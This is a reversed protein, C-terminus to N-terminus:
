KGNLATEILPIADFAADTLGPFVYRRDGAGPQHTTGAVNWIYSPTTSPLAAAPHPGQWASGDPEDTVIIVRNHGDFHARVADAANGDGLQWFRPLVTTLSDDPDCKVRLHSGGFQILTADEARLAVAAGFVAARDAITVASGRTVQTFMSVSRDILILTRGPLSPVNALSIQLARVLAASWARSAAWTGSPTQRAAEYLRLPRIRERTIREPDALEEGLRRVTERSLGCADLEPLRRLRDAYSMSPLVAEWARPDTEGLLWGNLLDSTMGAAAFLEALDPGALLEHRQEPTLSYLLAQARVLPLSAPIAADGRRRAVAHAFLVRQRADAPKPHVFGIVDGFRVKAATTDYTALAREDYLDRIADALGHKIPKPMTRGHRHFWYDLLAGPEDARRLADSIVRRNGGSTALGAALRVRVREAAAIPAAGAPAGRDGLWGILRSLWDDDAIALLGVLEIFREDADASRGLGEALEVTTIVLEKKLDVTRRGDVTRIATM